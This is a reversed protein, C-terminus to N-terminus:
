CQNHGCAMQEATVNQTHVGDGDHHNGTNGYLGQGFTENRRAVHLEEGQLRGFSLFSQIQTEAM